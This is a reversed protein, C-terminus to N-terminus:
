ALMSSVSFNRLLPAFHILVFRAPLSVAVGRVRLRNTRATGNMSVFSVFTSEPKKERGVVEGRGRNRAKTRGWKFNAIPAPTIPIMFNLRGSAKGSANLYM